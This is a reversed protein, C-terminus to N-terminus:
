ECIKGQREYEMNAHICWYNIRAVAEGTKWLVKTIVLQSM